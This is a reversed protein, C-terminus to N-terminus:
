DHTGATGSSVTGSDFLYPPHGAVHGGGSETVNYDWPNDGSAGGFFGQYNWFTRYTQLSYGDPTIGTYTNDHVLLSGSRIGDMTTSYSWHYENNYIEQARGGRARDAETGHCLIEIDFLNCYRVVFKGGAGADIGASATFPGNTM